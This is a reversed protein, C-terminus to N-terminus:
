PNPHCGTLRRTPTTGRRGRRWWTMALSVGVSAQVMFAILVFLVM